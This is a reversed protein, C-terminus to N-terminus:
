AGQRRVHQIRCRGPQKVCREAVARRVGPRAFPPQREHPHEDVLRRSAVEVADVAKEQSAKAAVVFPRLDARERFPRVRVQRGMLRGVDVASLRAM